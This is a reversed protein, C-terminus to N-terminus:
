ISIPVRSQMKEIDIKNKLFIKQLNIPHEYYFISSHTSVADIYEYEWKEELYM